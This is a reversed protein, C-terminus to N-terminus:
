KITGFEKFPYIRILAKGVIDESDIYNNEWYRSDNSKSRNDGLFFYKGDPVKFKGFYQLENNEVYSEEIIEGNVMVEGNTISIDDGPLGILRKILLDNLEESEFVLIDGRKLNDLKYLKLVILQDHKKITPFMSESPIYVIFIIFKNIIFAMLVALVISLIWTKIESAEMVNKDNRKISM